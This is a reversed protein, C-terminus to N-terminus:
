NKYIKESKILLQKIQNKYYEGIHNKNEENLDEFKETNKTSVIVKAKKIFPIHKEFVEDTNYYSIMLIECNTKKAISFSGDKFDNLSLLDHNKNRTGEPFIYVSINDNISKISDLIVQMGQRLDKRDIFICGVNKMWINLFPFKEFEKKVIFTINQKVLSLAILCDFFSRHNSIILKAKDEEMKELLYKKNDYIVDTGALFLITKAFFVIIRTYYKRMENKNKLGIFFGIILSIQGVTFFFVLFVIILFTRIM